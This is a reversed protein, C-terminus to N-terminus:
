QKAIPPGLNGLYYYGKISLQSFPASPKAQGKSVCVFPIKNVDPMREMTKRASLLSQKTISISLEELLDTEPVSQTV